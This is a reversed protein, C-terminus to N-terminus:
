KESASKRLSEMNKGPYRGSSNSPYNGSVDPRLGPLNESKDPKFGPLIDPVFGPLNNSDANTRTFDAYTRM